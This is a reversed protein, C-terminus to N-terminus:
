VAGARFAGGRGLTRARAHTRIDSHTQTRAHANRTPAGASHRASPRLPIACWELCVTKVAKVEGSEDGILEKTLM